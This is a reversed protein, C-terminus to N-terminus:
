VEEYKDVHVCTHMQVCVYKSMSVIISTCMCMCICMLVKCREGESMVSILRKDRTRYCMIARETHTCMCMLVNCREGESIM